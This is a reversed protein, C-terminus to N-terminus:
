IILQIKKNYGHGNALPQLIEHRNAVNSNQRRGKSYWFLVCKGRWAVHFELLATGNSGQVEQPQGELPAM